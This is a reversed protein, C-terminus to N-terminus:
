SLRKYIDLYTGCNSLDDSTGCEGSGECYGGVQLASRDSCSTWQYQWAQAPCKEPQVAQIVMGRCSIQRFPDRTPNQVPSPSPDLTRAALESTPALTPVAPDASLGGQLADWWGSGHSAALAALTTVLVVVVMGILRKKFTQRRRERTADVSHREEAPTQEIQYGDYVPIASALPVEDDDDFNDSPVPTFLERARPTGGGEAGTDHVVIFASRVCM